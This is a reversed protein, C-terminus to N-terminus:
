TMLLRDDIETPVGVKMAHSRTGDYRKIFSTQGDVEAESVGTWWGGKPQSRGKL